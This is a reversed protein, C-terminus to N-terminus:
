GLNLARKADWGYKSVRQWVTQRNLGLEGCWDTLSKEVGDVNLIITRRTNNSQEKPTAWRCNAPEYNGSNDIRDISMGNPRSGMDELFAPFSNRWRECVSIGRAGYNHYQWNKPNYCRGIIRSWTNHEITRSKGHVTKNEKTFSALLCGCSKTKELTLHSLRFEKKVGCDCEAVVFRKGNRPPLNEVVVLNSFRSGMYNKIAM